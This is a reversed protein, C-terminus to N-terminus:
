LLPSPASPQRDRYTWGVCGIITLERLQRVVNDQKSVGVLTPIRRLPREWSLQTHAVDKITVKIHEDQANVL